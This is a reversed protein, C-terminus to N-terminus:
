SIYGLIKYILLKVFIFDLTILIFNAMNGFNKIKFKDMKM